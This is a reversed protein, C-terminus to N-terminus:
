SSIEDILVHNSVRDESKEVDECQIFSWLKKILLLETVNMRRGTDGKKM